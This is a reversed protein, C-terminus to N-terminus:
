RERKDRKKAPKEPMILDKIIGAAVIGILGFLIVRVTLRKAFVNIYAFVTVFLLTRLLGLLISTTVSGRFLTTRLVALVLLVAVIIIVINTVNLVIAPKELNKTQERLGSLLNEFVVSRYLFWTFCVTVVGACVVTFGKVFIRIIWTYDEAASYLTNFPILRLVMYVPISLLSLIIFNFLIQVAGEQSVLDSLMDGVLPKAETEGAIYPACEDFLNYVGYVSYDETGYFPFSQLGADHGGSISSLVDEVEDVHFLGPYMIMVSLLLLGAAIILCIFRKLSTM